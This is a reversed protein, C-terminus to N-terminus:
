RSNVVPCERRKRKTKKTTTNNNNTATIRTGQQQTTYYQTSQSQRHYVKRGIPHRSQQHTLSSSTPPPQSRQQPSDAPSAIQTKSYSQHRPNVQRCSPQLALKSINNNTCSLDTCSSSSSLESSSKPSPESETDSCSSSESSTVSSTTSSASSHNSSNSSSSCSEVETSSLVNETTIIRNQQDALPPTRMAVAAYTPPPPSWNSQIWNRYTVVENTVRVVRGLISHGHSPMFTGRSLISYAYDFAEQVKLAGYSSRGIDNGRHLPDEICLLSPRYGDTMDKMLEEKPIYCGGDRVRIGTKHYNFLRGYLEFFEILLVGLNAIRPMTDYRPHLQFFSVTMLILSYSSIGGTFVENLDRQLLFQKLVLVLYPLMPYEKMFRKIMRASKVGNVMNFSIDVKVDFRKETLKVIPVTAKDLVKITDPDAINNARLEKELTFLPLSEWEGFVVLDIDSTPLYLGTEFSGFIEVGSRRRPLTSKSKAM